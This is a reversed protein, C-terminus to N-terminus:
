KYLAHNEAELQAIKTAEGHLGHRLAPHSTHPVDCASNDNYRGKGGSAIPPPANSVSSEAAM